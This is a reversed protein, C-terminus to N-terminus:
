QENMITKGPSITQLVLLAATGSANDNAGNYIAGEQIGVHDYHASFIIAEGPKSRGELVGVVNLLTNAPDYVGKSNSTRGVSDNTSFPQLYSNFGPFYKLGSQNFHDAIFNASQHLQPSYAGRGKLSDAALYNLIAAVHEQEISDVPLQANASIFFVSCVLWCLYKRISIKLSLGRQHLRM